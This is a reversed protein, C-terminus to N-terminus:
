MLTQPARQEPPTTHNDGMPAASGAQQEPKKANNAGEQGQQNPDNPSSNAQMAQALGNQAVISLIGQSVAEALDVKDDLRRVTERALWIPNIGPMQILFPLMQQWNRVEIAQNPKGSSGAEIDLYLEDAVDQLQLPPWVSGRGVIKTVQEASMEKQYIQSRARALKTLLDNLDDMADGDAASTAGAAIASQTATADSTAGYQAEQAGTILQIDSFYQNTEYLNPDVGPVPVVQLLKGIDGGPDMNIAMAEFPELNQMDNIDDEDAFSGNAYIWRPRAAQRHERMGQRSRNYERQPDLMLTVDSPPFLEDESEIENFTLPYITWFDEAFVDPATAPKLLCPYGDALYYVLGSPKDFCEWVCVLGDKKKDEAPAFAFDENFIDDSAVLKNTGKDQNYVTFQSGIDCGFLEEVQERTYAYEVTVRRAGIFGELYKCMRDPIVKTSPPYDIVLGERLVIQPEQQLSLISAQLEAMEADDTNFEGEAADEALKKLHDLRAQADALQQSVVPSPGTQRQFAHKVYGVGTVCARRVVQKMGRKFNLPLQQDLMYEDLREMTDGYKKMFQRVQMGQQFDQMVALAQQAGPVEPPPQQSMMGTAPDVVPPAAAAAANAQQQLMAAQQALQLSQPTEDWVAFDLTDRRVAKTKPNKAYLASTKRKVHRGTINARYSADGWDTDAGHMAVRMDRRMRKFAKDHHAKDAKIEKIMQKVLAKESEPAQDATASDTDGAPVAAQVTNDTPMDFMDAM